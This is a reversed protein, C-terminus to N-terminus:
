KPTAQFDHTTEKGEEITIEEGQGGGKNLYGAEEHWAIVRVKGVPLNKIEYTGFKADKPDTKDKGDLTDSYSIASYPTDLLRIYGDMWTHINCNLKMPETTAALNEIKITKDQALTENGKPNDPGGEYKTNHSTFKADNTVEIIQGTPKKARPKKPDPYYEAWVIATHPIFACHPQRIKVPHEKAAKVAAEDVKFFTGPAPRIWVFANGLNGNEGIRYAQATTESPEGKMCDAKQEPKDKAIRDQLLKTMAEVNPKTTLTIKGKLVGGKPELVKVEKTQAGKDSGSGSSSSSSSASPGTDKGGGCGAVMLSLAFVPLAVIMFGFSFRRM